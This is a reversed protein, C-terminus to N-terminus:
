PKGAKKVAKAIMDQLNLLEAEAAARASELRAVETEYPQIVLEAIGARVKKRVDPFAEAIHADLRVRDVAM